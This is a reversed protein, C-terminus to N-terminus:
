PLKSLLSLSHAKPYRSCTDGIHGMQTMQPNSKHRDEECRRAACWPVCGLSWPFWADADEPTECHDENAKTAAM